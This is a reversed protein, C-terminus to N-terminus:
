MCISQSHIAAVAAIKNATCRLKRLTFGGSMVFRGRLAQLSPCTIGTDSSDIIEAVGTEHRANKLRQCVIRDVVLDTRLSIAQLPPLAGRALLHVLHTQTTFEFIEKSSEKLVSISVEDLSKYWM